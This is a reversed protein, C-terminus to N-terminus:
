GDHPVVTFYFQLDAETSPREEPNGYDEAGM